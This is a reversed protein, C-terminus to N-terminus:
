GKTTVLKGNGKPILLENNKMWKLANFFRERPIKLKEKHWNERAETVIDEDSFTKGKIILNNWAAYITAVIEAQKTDMLLFLDLLKFLINTKYGLCNEAKQIINNMSHGPKYNYYDGNKYVMYFGAKRARSEVKKAHPFDNPGAADKVPNRELDINLIYESLHVFKEVKVHHLSHSKDKKLHKKLAIATIGAQLDTASIGEVKQLPIVKCVSTAELASATLEGRFAKDLVSKKLEELDQLKKQYAAELKQTETRLADLQRVIAQQEALPPYPIIYNEIWEKSIRKHGVAGSMYLKGEERFHERSLFYFLFEPLVSEKSRFVIYESSGFGVNNILNKAIGLKGNEFCPTIKALLVDNNAFYTYSGSVDKLLREKISKIKIDAVNLDEMPLFSIMDTGNLKKKAESKPPKIECVESLKKEEWGNRKNEQGSRTSPDFVGQLYSEFLEKANKLNQEANNRSREIASFAKDLLAVIRQQEPLPPLSIEINKLKSIAIFDITAKGSLKLLVDKLTSCYYMLFNPIIKNKDKIVLGNFQQNTTL